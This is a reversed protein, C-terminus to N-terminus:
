HAHQAKAAAQRNMGGRKGCSIAMMMLTMDNGRRMVTFENVSLM